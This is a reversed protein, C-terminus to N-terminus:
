ETQHSYANTIHIIHIKQKHILHTFETTKKTISNININNPKTIPPTPPLTPQKQTTPKTQQHTHLTKRTLNQTHPPTKPIPIQHTHCIFSPSYSKLKIHSCKLHIWHPTTHNCQISTQYSTIKHTCIACYWMTEPQKGFKRRSAASGKEGLGPRSPPLGYFIHGSKLDEEQQYLSSPPHQLLNPGRSSVDRGRTPRGIEPGGM